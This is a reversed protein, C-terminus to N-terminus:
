DTQEPATDPETHQQGSDSDPLTIDQDPSLFQLVETEGTLIDYEVLM